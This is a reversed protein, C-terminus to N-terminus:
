RSPASGFVIFLRENAPRLGEAVEGARRGGDEKGGNMGGGNGIGGQLVSAPTCLKDNARCAPAQRRLSGPPVVRAFGRQERAFGGVM